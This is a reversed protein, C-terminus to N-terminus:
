FNYVVCVIRPRFRVDGSGIGGRLTHFGRGWQRKNVILQPEHLWCLAVNKARCLTRALGTPIAGRPTIVVRVPQNMTPRPEYLSRAAITAGRPFSTTGGCGPMIPDWGRIRFVDMCQFSRSPSSFPCGGTRYRGALHLSESGVPQNIVHSPSIRGTRSSLQGDLCRLKAAAGPSSLTGDM